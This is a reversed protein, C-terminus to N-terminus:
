KTLRHTLYNIESLLIFQHMSCPIRMCDFPLHDCSLSDVKCAAKDTVIRFTGREAIFADGEKPEFVSEPSWLPM